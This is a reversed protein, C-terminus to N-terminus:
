KPLVIVTADAASADLNGGPASRREMQVLDAAPIPGAAAHGKAAEKWDLEHLTAAPVDRSRDGLSDSKQRAPESQGGICGAFVLVGLVVFATVSRAMM